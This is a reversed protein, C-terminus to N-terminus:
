PLPIINMSGKTVVALINSPLHTNPLLHSPRVRLGRPNSSTCGSSNTEFYTSVSRFATRDFPNYIQIFFIIEMKVRMAVIRMVSSFCFDMVYAQLNMMRYRLIHLPCRVDNGLHSFISTNIPMIFVFDWNVFM